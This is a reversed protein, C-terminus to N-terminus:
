AYEEKIYASIEALTIKEDYFARGLISGAINQLAPFNQIDSMSSVGGSVIVRLGPAERNLEEYLEIDPGSLMGDRQIQTVLFNKVGNSAMEKMFGTIQRSTGEQWGSIKVERGWVDVTLLVRPGYEQMIKQFEDPDKFPLSGIMIFDSKPDLGADFLRKVDDLSRVGGGAEVVVGTEQKIKGFLDAHVVEGKKAGSLDVLHLRKVGAEAFRRAVELPEKSYVIKRTYDGQVLRVVESDIIDMAPILQM